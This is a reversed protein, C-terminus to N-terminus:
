WTYLITETLYNLLANKNIHVYFSKFKEKIMYSGIIPVSKLFLNM